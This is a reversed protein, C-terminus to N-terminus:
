DSGGDVVGVLEADVRFKDSCVYAEHIALGVSGPIPAYVVGDGHHEGFLPFYNKGQPRISDSGGVGHADGM